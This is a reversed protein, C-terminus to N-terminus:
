SYFYDQYYQLMKKNNKNNYNHNTFLGDVGMRRSKHKNDPPCAVLLRTVGNRALEGSLVIDDVLRACQPLSSFNHMFQEGLMKPTICVSGCGTVVHVPRSKTTDKLSHGFMTKGIRRKSVNWDWGRLCLACNQNDSDKLHTDYTEITRPGYIVDDDSIVIRTNSDESSFQLYPGVFKTAPGFDKTQLQVIKIKQLQQLHAPVVYPTKNRYLKPLFVIVSAPAVSQKLWSKLTNDITLLRDPSTTLTVILNSQRLNAAAEQDLLQINYQNWKNELRAGAIHSSSYVAWPINILIFLIVMWVIPIRPNCASGKQGTKLECARQQFIFWIAIISLGLFLLSKAIYM